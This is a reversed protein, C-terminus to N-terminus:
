FVSAPPGHIQPWGPLKILSTEFLFHVSAWFTCLGLSLGMHLVLFVTEMNGSEELPLGWALQPPCLLWSWRM